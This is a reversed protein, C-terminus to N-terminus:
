KYSFVINVFMAPVWEDASVEGTWHERFQGQFERKVALVIKTQHICNNPSKKNSFLSLVKNVKCTHIFQLWRDRLNQCITRFLFCFTRKLLQNWFSNLLYEIMNLAYFSRIDKNIVIPRQLEYWNTVSLDESFLTQLWDQRTGMISLTLFVEETRAPVDFYTALNRLKPWTLRSPRSVTLLIM